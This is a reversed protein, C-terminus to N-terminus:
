LHDAFRGKLEEFVAFGVMFLAAAGGFGYLLSDIDPMRGEIVIQRTAILVDTVPNLLYFTRYRAPVMKDSYFIPTLWFLLLAFSEVVYRTDRFYVDLASTLLSVGSAAMILIAITFPLCFWSLGIKLGAAITFVLVLSFQVAFHIANALVTSIPMVERPIKVRKVLGANSTISSTASVWAMNFYNFFVIGILLYLPYHAISTNNFIKTFVFNYIGVMILPNLLSWFVGLSM